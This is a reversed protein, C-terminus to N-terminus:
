EIGSSSSLTAIKSKLKKQADKMKEEERKKKTYKEKNRIVKHIMDSVAPSFVEEGDMFIRAQDYSDRPINVVLNLPVYSYVRRFSSGYDYTVNDIDALLVELLQLAEIPPDYWFYTYKHKCFFRQKEKTQDARVGELARELQYYKEPPFFTLLYDDIEREVKIREKERKEKNNM